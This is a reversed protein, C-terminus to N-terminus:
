LLMAKLKSVTEVLSNHKVRTPHFTSSPHHTNLPIPSGSLEKTICWNFTQFYHLNM